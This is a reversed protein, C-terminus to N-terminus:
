LLLVGAVCFWWEQWVFAPLWADTAGGGRKGRWRFGLPFFTLQWTIGSKKPM